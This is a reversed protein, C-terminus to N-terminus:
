VGIGFYKLGNDKVKKPSLINRGDFVTKQRLGKIKNFDLNKFEDHETAIILSDCKKIHQYKNNIFTINKLSLLEEKANKNALPDYAFIKIFHTSIIKILKISPSERTDDTNAKFALGWILLNGKPNTSNKLIKNAFYKIQDDNSSKVAQPILASINNKKFRDILGELDKPFCSGGFGLGSNLFHSGIRKDLSMGLKIQNIDADYYDSLRAIENIFGIKTALFANSAYKIIEASEISTFVLSNQKTIFKKYIEKSLKKVFNDKTGIVVRDPKKFDKVADGEKLFEPNSAFFTKVGKKIKKALYKEAFHNTGVPVTSKIYIVANNDLFEGISRLSSKLYRLDPEGNKKPPTGVCLFIADTNKLSKKYSSSFELNGSKVVKLVIKELNKEYFPIKGVKLKNLKTKDIDICKVFHGCEAFCAATVLGVYGSGVVVINM